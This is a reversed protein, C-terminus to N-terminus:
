RERGPIISAMAWYRAAARRNLFVAKTYMCIRLLHQLIGYCCDVNFTARDCSHAANHSWLVNFPTVTHATDLMAFIQVHRV